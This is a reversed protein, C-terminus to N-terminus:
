SAPVEWDKSLAEYIQLVLCAMAECLRNWDIKTFPVAQHLPRYHVLANRLRYVHKSTFSPMKEDASTEVGLSDLTRGLNEDSAHQFLAALSPEERPYWGLDEELIKAMETWPMSIGASTMLNRTQTHAYVAELCRYLALFLAAPDLDLISRCLTEFPIASPSLQIIEGLTTALQEDIWQEARRRDHLCLLFFIRFSDEVPLDRLSFAQVKPFLGAVLFPDHGDYLPDSKQDSYEVIDKIASSSECPAPTLESLVTTLLGGDLDLSELPAPVNEIDFGVTFLVSRGAHDFRAAKM